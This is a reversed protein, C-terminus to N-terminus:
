QEGGATEMKVFCSMCIRKPQKPAHPRFRVEVSCKCCTGRVDDAFHHEGEWPVCVIYDCTEAVDPEVVHIKIPKM